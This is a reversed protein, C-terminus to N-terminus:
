TLAAGGPRGEGRRRLGRGPAGRSAEARGGPRSFVGRGGEREEKKPIKQPTTQNTKKPPHPHLPPKPIRPAPPVLPSRLTEGEGGGPSPANRGLRRTKDFLSFAFFIIFLTAKPSGARGGPSSGKKRGPFDGRCQTKPFPSHIEM